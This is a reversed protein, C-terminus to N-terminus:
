AETKNRDYPLPIRDCGAISIYLFHGVGATKAAALLRRTGEVEIQYSRSFPSTAAHVLTGVGSLAKTLGEGTGLDCRIWDPQNPNPQRRSLSRVRYGAQELQPVVARGLVGSGGTVLVLDTM